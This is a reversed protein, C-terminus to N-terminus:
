VICNPSKISYLMLFKKVLFDYVFHPLFALGLGVFVFVIDTKIGNDWTPPNREIMHMGEQAM